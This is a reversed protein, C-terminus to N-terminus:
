FGENKNRAKLIKQLIDKKPQPRCFAKLSKEILEPSLSKKINPMQNQKMLFGLKSLGHVGTTLLIEDPKSESRRMILKGQLGLANISITKATGKAIDGGLISGGFEKLALNIGKYLEEVWSWNTNPPLVLRINIGLIKDCGSSLLDSFNSATAKWGLDQPSLLEKEFHTNEVMLDTNILLENNQIRLYACDDSIQKEPMFKALRKLLEKEGLDSILPDHMNKLIRKAM